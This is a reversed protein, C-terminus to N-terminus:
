IKKKKKTKKKKKQRQYRKEKREHQKQKKQKARWLRYKQVSKRVQNAFKHEDTIKLTFNRNIKEQEKTVDEFLRKMTDKDDALACLFDWTLAQEKKLHKIIKTYPNSAEKKYKTQLIEMEDKPDFAM